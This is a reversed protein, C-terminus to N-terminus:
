VKGTARTRSPRKALDQRIRQPHARLNKTQLPWELLAARYAVRVLMGGRKTEDERSLISGAPTHGFIISMRRTAGANAWNPRTGPNPAWVRHPELGGVVGGQFGSAASHASPCRGSTAPGRGSCTCRLTNSRSRGVGSTHEESGPEPLEGLTGLCRGERRRNPSGVARGM